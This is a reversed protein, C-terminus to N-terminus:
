NNEKIGVRNPNPRGLNKSNTILKLREQGEARTYLYGSKLLYALMINKIGSSYKLTM